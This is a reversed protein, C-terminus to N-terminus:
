KRMKDFLVSPIPYFDKSGSNIMIGGVEDNARATELIDRFKMVVYRTGRPMVKMFEAMDTYAYFWIQGNKDRGTMFSINQNGNELVKVGAKHPLMVELNLLVPGIVSISQEVPSNSHIMILQKLKSSDSFEEGSWARGVGCCAEFVLFSGFLLGLIRVIM